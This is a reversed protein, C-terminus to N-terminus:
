ILFDFSGNANKLYVKVLCDGTEPITYNLGASDNFIKSFVKKGNIVLLVGAKGSNLRTVMRVKMGAKVPFMEERVGTANKFRVHFGTSDSWSAISTRACGTFFVALIVLFALVLKLGRM